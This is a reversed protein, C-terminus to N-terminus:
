KGKNELIDKLTALIENDDLGLASISSCYDKSLRLAINLKHNKVVAENDTVYRGSTRHSVLLGEDELLSLARQMTNPNVGAEKALDRVSPLKEGTEYIGSAIRTSIIDAIQLYLSTNSDLDWM